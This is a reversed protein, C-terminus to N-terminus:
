SAREPELRVEGRKLFAEFSEESFTFGLDPLPPPEQKSDMKSLAQKQEKPPEQCPPLPATSSSFGIRKGEADYVVGNIFWGLHLGNFGYIHTGYLLAVPNGGWLFIVHRPRVSIYAVPEGWANFLTKEM